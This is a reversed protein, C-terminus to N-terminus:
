GHREEPPPCAYRARVLRLEEETINHWDAVGNAEWFENWDDEDVDVEFPGSHDDLLDTVLALHDTDYSNFQWARIAEADHDGFAVGRTADFPTSGDDVVYDGQWHQIRLEALLSPLTM